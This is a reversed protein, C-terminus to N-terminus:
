KSPSPGRNRNQRIKVREFIMDAVEISTHKNADIYGDTSFVGDVHGGDYRVFMVKEDERQKIIERIARFEISCWEKSAYAECLFVVILRSRSRYIDQLLTDLNPRALQSKYFDDFFVRHRGLLLSLREAVAHAQERIEGPFSLAVDFKTSTIDPLRKQDMDAYGDIEAQALVSQLDVDKLAWHTRNMEWKDIDLVWELRSFVDSPIPPCNADLLYEIRVWKDRKTIQTLHGLRTPTGHGREHAFLCPYEKLQAINSETLESFQQKLSSDIHERLCRSLDFKEPAGNWAKNNHTVFLNYM